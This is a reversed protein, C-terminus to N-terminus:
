SFAFRFLSGQEPFASCFEMGGFDVSLDVDVVEAVQFSELGAAEVAGFDGFGVIVVDYGADEGGGSLDGWNDGRAPQRTGWEDTEHRHTPIVIQM